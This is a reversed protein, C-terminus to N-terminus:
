RRRPNIASGAAFPALVEHCTWVFEGSADDDDRATGAGADAAGGAPSEGFEARSTATSSSCPGPRLADGVFQVLLEADRGPRARDVHGIAGGDVGRMADIPSCIPNTSMKTFLAAILV